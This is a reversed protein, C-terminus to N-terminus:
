QLLEGTDHLEDTETVEYGRDSQANDTRNLIPNALDAM